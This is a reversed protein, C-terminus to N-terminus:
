PCIIIRSARCVFPLQIARRWRVGTGCLSLPEFDLVGPGYLRRLRGEGSQQVRLTGQVWSGPGLFINAINVPVTFVYEGTSNMVVAGEFDLTDFASLDGKLDDAAAVVKANPGAPREYPPDLFFALGAAGPFDGDLKWWLVFPEGTFDEGTRTSLFVVGNDASDVSINKASRRITVQNSAQLPAGESKTVRLKVDTNPAAPISTFWLSTQKTYGLLQSLAVCQDRWLVSTSGSMPGIAVVLKTNCRM